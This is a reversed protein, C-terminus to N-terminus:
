SPSTAESTRPAGTLFVLTALAGVVFCSSWLATSGFRELVSVGAVPAIMFGAAYAMLYLGMYEGQRAPSALSAVYSSMAPMLIMEGFTWIVTALMYHVPARCLGYAGFGAAFLFAGLSLTRRLPWRATVHNLPIELVVIIATNLTFLVGYFRTSLGLDRVLHLPLSADLQFLVLGVLVIGLLAKLLARDSLARASPGEHTKSAQPPADLLAFLLGAAALSTLADVLWVWRFSVAALFGGLAPGAAMGLNIGLRHLAYAQQRDGEAVSETVATMNAPRFAETVLAWLVTMAVVAPFGRVIPFALMFVGSFTLSWLMLRSAGWTDCLRGALPAVILGVAGYLTVIFAARTAPWGLSSTLYLTLFPLAMTGFRNVFAAASIVWVRRPLRRLSLWAQM